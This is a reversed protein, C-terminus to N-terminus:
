LPLLSRAMTEEDSFRGVGTPNTSAVITGSLILSASGVRM